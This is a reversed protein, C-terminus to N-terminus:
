RIVIINDNNYSIGHEKAIDQINALSALENIKMMLSENITNQNELRMQMKQVEISTKSLASKSYVILIPSLLVLIAIITIMFRDIGRLKFKKRRSM